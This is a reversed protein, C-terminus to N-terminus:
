PRPGSPVRWVPVGRAEEVAENWGFGATRGASSRGAEALAQAAWGGYLQVVTGAALPMANSVGAKVLAVVITPVALRLRM